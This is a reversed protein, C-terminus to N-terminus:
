SGDRAGRAHHQIPLGFALEVVEHLEAVMAALRAEADLLADSLQERKACRTETTASAPSPAMESM